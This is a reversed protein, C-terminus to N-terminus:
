VDLKEFESNNSKYEPVMEKMAKVVEKVEGDMKTMLQNVETEIEQFDFERVKAIMIQPHHTPITNEKDNLVEEYLKEGPRLGTIKISIDKDLELGSLQIMKKALDIIKVSDGMDFAFIEGGNGMSGAELVLQCAEPITMFYRTIEDHTVTVPGGSEIQKRFIPIVSGNSGLVNGFRTTIYKTKSHVNLSQTYIEAIRKSAGMINTPNVAKDTSILVFTEVNYDNTLDILNRTGLVNTHVAEKPNIEMLPVHKYAAAHYVVQPQYKDFLEKLRGKDRIDGIVLEFQLTPFRDRLEIDFNYLPSEAHDVLVIKKPKYRGIQRVIESGISGAAGTVLIVKENLQKAVNEQDLKISKRGLLEEIKVKRIQNSSLEGGVWTKFPPVSYVEIGKELCLDVIKRKNDIDPNQISIILQDVASKDLLEKWKTTASIKIGEISKGAKGKDDDIFAVVNYKLDSEQDLAQKTIIGAEGAGYIVVNIKEKKKGRTEIYLLKVAFRLAIMLFVTTLFDIIIIAIPLFNLGDFFNYRLPSLLLFFLSGASITILIRKADETSTHRIIGIYTKSIFFSLARILVFIPFAVKFAQIESAIPINFFDFRILYALGLSFVCLLIDILFILWRPTNRKPFIM